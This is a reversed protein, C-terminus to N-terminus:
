AQAVMLGVFTILMANTYDGHYLCLALGGGAAIFYCIKWFGVSM